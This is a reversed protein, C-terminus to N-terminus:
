IHFILNTALRFLDLALHRAVFGLLQFTLCTLRSVLRSPDDPVYLFIDSGFM